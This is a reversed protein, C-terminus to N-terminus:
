RSRGDARGTDPPAKEAVVAYSGGTYLKAIPRAALGLIPIRKLRAKVVQSHYSKSRTVRFGHRALLTELSRPTFHYLHYPLDWDEWAERKARADTGEHNPVDVVLVGDPKLWERAADVYRGPEGTHELSHWMTVVDFSDASFLRDDLPAASVPIGLTSRVFRAATESVDLGEAGFGAGRCAYLFYGRGVGIDLLRGGRKAARVFRVRHGERRIAGGFQASGPALGADYHGAFYDERYLADREVADPRPDLIGLGCAACKVVRWAGISVLPLRETGGCAECHVPASEM